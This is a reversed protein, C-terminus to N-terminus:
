CEKQTDLGPNFNPAGGRVPDDEGIRGCHTTGKGREEKGAAM